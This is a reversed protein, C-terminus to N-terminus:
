CKINQDDNQAALAFKHKFPVIPPIQLYLWRCALRIYIETEHLLKNAEQTKYLFFSIFSLYRM